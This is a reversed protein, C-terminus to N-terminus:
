FWSSPMTSGGAVLFGGGRSYVMDMYRELYGTTGDGPELKTETGFPGTELLHAALCGQAEDAQTIPNGPSAFTGWMDTSPGGMRTAARNLAAQVLNQDTQQFEPFNLQFTAVDM